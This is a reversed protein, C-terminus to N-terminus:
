NPALNEEAQAKVNRRSVCFLCHCIKFENRMNIFHANIQREVADRNDDNIEVYLCACPLEHSITAGVAGSPAAIPLTHGGMSGNGACTCGRESKNRVTKLAPPYWVWSDPKFRRVQMRQVSM